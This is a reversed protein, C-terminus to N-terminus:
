PKGGSSLQRAGPGRVIRGPRADTHEGDRLVAVGNVLVHRMGTAYQRPTDYTAHDAITAPDFVVVDAFNGPRLAGRRDLHLNTAPLLTLRRIAEALTIVREERVYRGLLRSFNGYARPHPNSKLFAGEPASSGADSGFSVWPQAIQMRLNDESMLFYAVEIRTGDAVILDIITDEPTTGRQRAVEALTKGTLPKLADTKFGLLLVREPSGTALYLSEWDKAPQRMEAIVRARIAPDKLREIWAKVGGEQVWPPMAADFGTAGATYTYMDATVQLGERRAAEIKALAERMKAWNSEGAAKLHYIEVPIKAERAIRITEDLAELFRDGESRMHATYIGGSQAAVKSLEILEDTGAFAAPAYILATTVGLAGEEMAERVLAKMQELEAPTPARNVQGMVYDRVTPAGVFSAVNPSMGRKELFDLYQGLTDWTIDFRIDGQLERWEQKMRANLPGASFEGFVELTVGQRIESQSRPDEILSEESHSLMNIFGPAVALGAADIEQRGHARGLNGIAAIKDGQIALDGATGAAGTGDYLTGHRIVVDYEPNTSCAALALLAALGGAFRALATAPHKM